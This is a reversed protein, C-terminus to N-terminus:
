KRKSAPKKKAPAAAPTIEELYQAELFTKQAEFDAESLKGTKLSLELESLAELLADRHSFEAEASLPANYNELSHFILPFSIVAAVTLLILASILFLIM